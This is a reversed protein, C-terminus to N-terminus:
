FMLVPAFPFPCPQIVAVFYALYMLYERTHLNCAFDASVSAVCALLLTSHFSSGQTAGLSVGQPRQVNEGIAM